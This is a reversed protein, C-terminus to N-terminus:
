RVMRGLLSMLIPNLMRAVKPLTPYTLTGLIFWNLSLLAVADSAPKNSITSFFQVVSRLSMGVVTFLAVVLPMCPDKAEWVIMGVLFSLIASFLSQKLAVERQQDLFESTELELGMISKSDNPDSDNSLSLLADVNKKESLLEQLFSGHPGDRPTKLSSIGFPINGHNLAKSTTQSKVQSPQSEFSRVDM